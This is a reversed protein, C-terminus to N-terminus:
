GYMESMRTCQQEPPFYLQPWINVATKHDAMWKILWIGRTDNVKCCYKDILMMLVPIPSGILIRSCKDYVYVYLYIYEIKQFVYINILINVKKSKWTSKSVSAACSMKVCKSRDIGKWVHLSFFFVLQEEHWVYEWRSSINCNNKSLPPQRSLNHYWTAVDPVSFHLWQTEKFPKFHSGARVSRWTLIALKAFSIFINLAHLYFYDMVLLQM